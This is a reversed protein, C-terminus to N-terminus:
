EHIRKWVRAHTSARIRMYLINWQDNQWKFRLKLKLIWRNILILRLFFFLYLRSISLFIVVYNKNLRLLSSFFICSNCVQFFLPLLLSCLPFTTLIDDFTVIFLIYSIILLSSKGHSKENVKTSLNIIKKEKKKKLYSGINLFLNLYM